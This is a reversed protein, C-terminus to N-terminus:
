VASPIAGPFPTDIMDPIGKRQPQLHATLLVALLILEVM